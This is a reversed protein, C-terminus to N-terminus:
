LVRLTGGLQFWLLFRLVRREGAQGVSVIWDPGTESGGGLAAWGCPSFILLIRGGFVFWGEQAVQVALWRVLLQSRNKFDLIAGSM